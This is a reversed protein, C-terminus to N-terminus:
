GSTTTAAPAVPAPPLTLDLRAQLDNVLQKNLNRTDRARRGWWDSFATRFDAVCGADVPPSNYYNVLNHLAIRREAPSAREYSSLLPAWVMKYPYQTHFQTTFLHTWVEVERDLVPRPDGVHHVAHYMEHNANQLLRSPGAPTLSGPGVVVYTQGGSNFHYSTSADRKDGLRLDFNVVPFPSYDAPHPQNPVSNRAPLVVVGPGLVERVLVIMSDRRADLDMTKQAAEVRSKWSALGAASPFGAPCSASTLEVTAAPAPTSPTAAVAATVTAQKGPLPAMGLLKRIDAELLGITEGGGVYYSHIVGKQDVLIQHPLNQVGFDMYSRSKSDIGTAWPLKKLSVMKRVDAPAQQSHNTMGVVAFSPAYDKQLRKLEPFAAICPACWTAWFDLLVVKGKLSALKVAPGGTWEEAQLELAPKGVVDAPNNLFTEVEPEPRGWKRRSFDPNHISEDRGAIVLEKTGNGDFDGIAFGDASDAVTTRRWGARLKRYIRVPSRTFIKRVEGAVVIEDRADKDFDALAINTVRMEATVDDILEYKWGDGVQSMVALRGRAIKGYDSHWGDNVVIDPRRDGNVDGIAVASVGRHAPLKLRKGDNILFADGITTRGRAVDEPTPEAYPRGVVLVNRGGDGFSGVGVSTGMRVDPLKETKWDNRQRDAVVFSVGYKSSFFSFLIENEPDADFNVIELGTIQPRESPVSFLEVPTWGGPDLPRYANLRVDVQDGDPSNYGPLGEGLLLENRGDRDIDIIQMAGPAVAFPHSAIERPQRSSYDYIVLQKDKSNWRLVEDRKDGDLDGAGVWYSIWAAKQAASPSLAVPAPQVVVGVKPQLDKILRSSATRNDRLRQEVWAKFEAKVTDACHAPVFSSAESGNFYALMSDLATQRAAPGSQDYYTLMPGWAMRYPYLRHFYRQFGHVWAELERESQPRRDGVHHEAHYLEHEVYERIFIPSRADVAKPGIVLYPVRDRTFYYGGNNELSRPVTSASLQASQKSNLHPDFNVVPTPKLDVVSVQGPSNNTALHITIGSGALSERVLAAMAENYEPGTRLARADYVKRRWDLTQEISPFDSPCSLSAPAAAAVVAPQAPRDDTARVPPGATACGAIITGLFAAYAARVSIIDRTTNKM